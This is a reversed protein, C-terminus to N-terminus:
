LLGIGHNIVAGDVNRMAPTSCPMSIRGQQSVTQNAHLRLWERLSPICLPILAINPV